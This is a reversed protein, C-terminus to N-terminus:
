EGFTTLRGYVDVDPPGVPWTEESSNMKDRSDKIKIFTRQLFRVIKTNPRVVSDCVRAVRRANNAAVFKATGTLHSYRSKSKTTIVM